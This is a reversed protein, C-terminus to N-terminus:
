PPSLWIYTGFVLFDIGGVVSLFRDTRSREPEEATNWPSHFWAPLPNRQAGWPLCTAVLLLASGAIVNSTM